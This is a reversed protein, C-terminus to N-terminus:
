HCSMTESRSAASESRSVTTASNSVAREEASFSSVRACAQKGGFAGARRIFAKYGGSQIDM